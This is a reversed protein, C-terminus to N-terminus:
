NNISCEYNSITQRKSRTDFSWQGIVVSL